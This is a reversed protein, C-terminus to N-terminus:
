LFQDIEKITGSEVESVLQRVVSWMPFGTIFAIILSAIFSNRASFNFIQLGGTFLITFGSLTGIWSTITYFNELPLPSVKENQWNDLKLQILRVFSFSCVLVLIAGSCIMAVYIQSSSFVSNGMNPDIAILQSKLQLM